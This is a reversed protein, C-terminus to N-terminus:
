MNRSTALWWWALSRLSKNLCYNCIGLSSLWKMHLLQKSLDNLEKAQHHNVFLRFMYDYSLNQNLIYDNAISQFKRRNYKTYSYAVHHFVQSQCSIICPSWFDRNVQHNCYLFNCTINLSDGELRWVNISEGFQERLGHETYCPGCESHLRHHGDEFWWTDPSQEFVGLKGDCLSKKIVRYSLEVAAPIMLSSFCHRVSPLKLLGEYTQTFHKRVSFAQWHQHYRTQERKACSLFNQCHCYKAQRRTAYNDPVPV